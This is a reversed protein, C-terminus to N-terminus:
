EACGIRTGSVAVDDIWTDAAGQLSPKYFSLGVGLNGLQPLGLNTQDLDTVETGNLYLHSTEATSDVEVEFCMWEDMTTAGSDSDWGQDQGTGWTDMALSGSPPNIVVQIGAYPSSAQLLEILNGPSPPLPSPQYAFFRAFVHNPWTQIQQVYAYAGTGAETIPELHAHLAHTGRHVHTSDVTVTGGSVTTQTWHTIGQEFGDCFVFGGDSCPAAGADNADPPSPADSADSRSRADAPDTPPRTDAPASGDAADSSTPDHHDAAADTEAGGLATSLCGTLTACAVLM